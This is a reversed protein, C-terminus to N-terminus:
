AFCPCKRDSYCLILDCEYIYIFKELKKKCKAYDNKEDGDSESDSSCSVPEDMTETDLIPSEDDLAKPKRDNLHRKVFKFYSFNM